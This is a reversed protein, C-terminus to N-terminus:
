ADGSFYYRALMRAVCAPKDSGEVEVRLDLYVQVGGPVEECAALTASTRVKSDVPVPTPFRVNDLGYNIAMDAGPVDLMEGLLGAMFSLSLYDHAITTGFPGTAALEPDVHIWNHDGTAEAFLEIRRQDIVVWDSTGLDTGAGALLEEVGPFVKM